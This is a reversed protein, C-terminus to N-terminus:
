YHILMDKLFICTTMSVQLLNWVVSLVFAYVADLTYETIGVAAKRTPKKFQRWAVLPRNRFREDEPEDELSATSSSAHANGLKNDSNTGKLASIGLVASAGAGSAACTGSFGLGVAGISQLTAVTGGAAMSAVGGGLATAEASMMSAAVSNAAIGTSTFGMGGVVGMVAFPAAVAATAATAVIGIRNKIHSSSLKQPMISEMIWTQQPINTTGTERPAYLFLTDKGNESLHCSLILNGDLSSAIHVGGAQDPDPILYWRASNCSSSLHVPFRALDDPDRNLFMKKEACFIKFGGKEDHIPVFTWKQIMKKDM